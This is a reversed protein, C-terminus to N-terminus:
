WGGIPFNLHIKKKPVLDYVQFSSFLGMGTARMYIGRYQFRGGGKKGERNINWITQLSHVYVLKLFHFNQTKKM